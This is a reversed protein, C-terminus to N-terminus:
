RQEERPRRRAWLVLGVLTFLMGISAEAIWVRRGRSLHGPMYVELARVAGSAAAVAGVTAVAAIVLGYVIARAVTRIPVTARDRVTAVVAEIADAAQVTWDPQGGSPSQNEL